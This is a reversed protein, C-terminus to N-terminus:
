LKSWMGEEVELTEGPQPAEVKEKDMMQKM